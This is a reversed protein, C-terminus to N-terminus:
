LVFTYVIHAILLGMTFGVMQFLAKRSGIYILLDM